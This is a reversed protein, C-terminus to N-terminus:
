VGALPAAHIVSNPLCNMSLYRFFGEGFFKSQFQDSQLSTICFHFHNKGRVHFIHKALGVATGKKGQYVLSKFRRGIGM